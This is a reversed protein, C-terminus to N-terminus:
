HDAAPHSRLLRPTCAGVGDDDAFPRRTTPVKLTVKHQWSTLHLNTVAPECLGRTAEYGAHEQWNMEFYQVIHTEAASRRRAPVPKPIM